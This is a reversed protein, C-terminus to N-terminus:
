DKMISIKDLVKGNTLIDCAPGQSDFYFRYEKNPFHEEALEVIKWDIGNTTANGGIVFDKEVMPKFEVVEASYDDPYLSEILINM